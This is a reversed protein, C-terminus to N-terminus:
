RVAQGGSAAGQAANRRTAEIKQRVEPPMEGGRFSKVDNTTAPKSAPESCGTLLTLAGLVTVALLTPSVFRM